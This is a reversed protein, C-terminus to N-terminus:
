CCRTVHDKFANFCHLHYVVGGVRDVVERGSKTRSINAHAAEMFINTQCFLRLTIKIVGRTCLNCHLWISSSFARSIGYELLVVAGPQCRIGFSGFPCKKILVCVHFLRLKNESRLESAEADTAMSHQSSESPSFVADM